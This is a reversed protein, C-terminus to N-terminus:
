MVMTLQNKVFTGLGHWPVSYDKGFTTSQVIPCECVFFHLQM